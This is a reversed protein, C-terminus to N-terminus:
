FHGGKFFKLRELDKVYIKVCCKLIHCINLLGNMMHNAILTSKSHTVGEPDM